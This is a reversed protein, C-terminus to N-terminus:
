HVSLTAICHRRLAPFTIPGCEKQVRRQLAANRNDSRLHDRNHMSQAPPKEATSLKGEVPNTPQQQRTDSDGSIKGRQEIPITSIPSSPTEPTVRAEGASAPERAVPEMGGTETSRPADVSPSPIRFGDPESRIAGVDRDDPRQEPGPNFRPTEAAEGTSAGQAPPASLLNPSDLAPSFKEESTGVADPVVHPHHNVTTGVGYQTIPANGLHLLSVAAISFMIVTVVGILGVFVLSLSIGPPAAPKSRPGPRGTMDNQSTPPAM